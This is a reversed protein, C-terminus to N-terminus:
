KERKVKRYDKPRMGVRELFLSSFYHQDSIQVREAIEGVTMHTNKLLLKATDIKLGILYEYPTVGYQKKFVRIINSKSIHFAASLEDLTLKEYVASNLAERIRHADAGENQRMESAVSHIIGHICEAITYYIYADTSGSQTAEYVREFYRRAGESRYIGSGIGYATLMSSIYEAEYNVWIKKMPSVPDSRYRHEEGQRLIYIDGEKVRKWVGDLLVEGEGELLYEFVNVKHESSRSVGYDPFPYTVGVLARKFPAGNQGVFATANEIKPYKVTKPKTRNEDM